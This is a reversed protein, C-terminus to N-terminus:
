VVGRPIEQSRPEITVITGNCKGDEVTSCFRLSLEREQICAVVRCEEPLRAKSLEDLHDQISRRDKSAVFSSLAEGILTQEKKGLIKSAWVNAMLIRGNEDLEIVGCDFSRMLSEYHRKVLLMQSILQRPRFGEFGFIGGEVLDGRGGQEVFKIASLINNAMVALPGKAVYADASLEHFRRIDQPSLGSVAIIPTNRLHLDQRILWCVRSGDIKPMVIDLLVFNPKVKRISLLAELGDRALHVEFGKDRLLEGLAEHLLPDHDALVISKPTSQDDPKKGTM